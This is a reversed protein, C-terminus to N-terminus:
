APVPPAPLRAIRELMEGFLEHPMMVEAMQLHDVSPFRYAGQTDPCAPPRAEELNRVSRPFGRQM